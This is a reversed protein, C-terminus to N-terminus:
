TPYRAVIWDFLREGFLKHSKPGPHIDTDSVHDIIDFDFGLYNESNLWGNERYSGIIEPWDYYNNTCYGWTIGLQDFTSQIIKLNKVINVADDHPSDLPPWNNIYTSDEDSQKEPKMDGRGVLICYDRDVARRNGRLDFFERRAM